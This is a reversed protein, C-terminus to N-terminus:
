GKWPIRRDGIMAAAAIARDDSDTTVLELRSRRQRGGGSGSEPGICTAGCTCTPAAAISLVSPPLRRGAVCCDVRDAPHGDCRHGGHCAALGVSGCVV